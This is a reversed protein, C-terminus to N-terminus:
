RGGEDPHATKWARRVSALTMGIAAAPQQVGFVVGRGRLLDVVQQSSLDHGAQREAEWLERALRKQVETLWPQAQQGPSETVVEVTAADAAQATDEAQVEVAPPPAPPALAVLQRITYAQIRLRGIEADIEEQQRKAIARLEPSAEGYAKAVPQVYDATM